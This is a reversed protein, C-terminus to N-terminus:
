RLIKAKTLRASQTTEPDRVLELAGRVTLRDGDALSAVPASLRVELSTGHEPNGCFPCFGMDSILMFDSVNEDSWLLVVYGTIDFQEVGDQIAAPFIKRVKYTTGATIEDVEISRLLDWSKETNAFAPFLPTVIATQAAALALASTRLPTPKM